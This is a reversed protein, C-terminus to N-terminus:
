FVGRNRAKRLSGFVRYDLHTKIAFTTNSAGSPNRPYAQATMVFWLRDDHGVRRRTRADLHPGDWVSGYGGTNWPYLSAGRTPDTGVPANGFQIAAALGPNGLIWQRRWLWPERIADPIDPNYSALYNAPYGIPVDVGLGINVSEARAVFLAATVLSAPTALNVATAGTIGWDVSQFEAYVKGVVRKLFYESGTLYDLPTASEVWTDPEQPADFILPVVGITPGSNGGTVSLVLEIGATPAKTVDDPDIVGINPFWTGRPRRRRRYAM